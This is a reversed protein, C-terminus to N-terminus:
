PPGCVVQWPTLGACTLTRMGSTTQLTFNGQCEMQSMRAGAHSGGSVDSDRTIIYRRGGPSLVWATTVVSDRGATDARLLFPQGALQAQVACDTGPSRDTGVPFSGCDLASGGALSHAYADIDCTPASCGGTTISVALAFALGSATSRSAARNKM